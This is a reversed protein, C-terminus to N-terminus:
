ERPTGGGDTPEWRAMRHLHWRLVRHPLVYSLPGCIWCNRRDFIHFIKRPDEDDEYFSEAEERKM